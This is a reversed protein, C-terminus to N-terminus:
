TQTDKPKTQDEWFNCLPKKHVWGFFQGPPPPYTPISFLIRGTQCLSFAGLGFWSLTAVSLQTLFSLIFWAPVLVLFFHVKPDVRLSTRKRKPQASRSDGKTVVLAFAMGSKRVCWMAQQDLVSDAHTLRSPNSRQDFSTANQGPAAWLPAPRMIKGHDFDGGLHHTLPFRGCKRVNVVGLFVWFLSGLPFCVITMSLPLAGHLNRGEQHPHQGTGAAGGEGPLGARQHAAAVCVSRAAQLAGAVPTPKESCRCTRLRRVEWFIFTWMHGQSHVTASCYPCRGAGCAGLATCKRGSVHCRHHVQFISNRKLSGKDPEMNTGRRCGPIHWAM